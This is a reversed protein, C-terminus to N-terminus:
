GAARLRADQHAQAGAYFCLVSATMAAVSFRQSISQQLQSALRATEVPDDLTREIAAALGMVDGPEVLRTQTGEIIEPVGGVRTAILPIGAGAAELAVYPLSEARSPMVLLRALPFARPAPMAGAFKVSADLGLTSAQQQFIHADPGAGVIVASVSRKKVLVAIADLLVDVGKLHRM